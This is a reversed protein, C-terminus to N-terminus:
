NLKKTRDSFGDIQNSDIMDTCNISIHICYTNASQVFPVCIFGARQFPQHETLSLARSINEKNVDHTYCFQCCLSFATFHSTTATAANKIKTTSTPTFASTQEEMDFIRVISLPGLTALSVQSQLYGGSSIFYTLTGM